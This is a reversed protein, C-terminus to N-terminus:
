RVESPNPAAPHSPHATASITNLLYGSVVKLIGRTAPLDRELLDDIIAKPISVASASDSSVEVSASRPRRTIVGLEGFVTGKAVWTETEGSVLLFISESEQGARCIEDGAKYFELTSEDAVKALSQLDLAAFAEVSLLEAMVVISAPRQGLRMTERWEELFASPAPDRPWLGDALAGANAPDAAVLGSVALAAVIWDRDAALGRLVEDAPKVAEVVDAYTSFVKDSTSRRFADRIDVPVSATAELLAADTEPSSLTYLSQAFSRAVGPADISSTVTAFEQILLRQRLLLAHRALRAEPRDDSALSFRFVEMRCFADLLKHANDVFRADDHTVEALIRAHEDESIGFLGRLPIIEKMAAPSALYAAPQVGEALGQQILDLLFKRYNERRLRVEISRAADPDLLTPDQIGVAEAIAAHDADSLGLQERVDRLMQLSNSSHTQGTELADVLIARYAERKQTSSFYPLTKALVYVEDATLQEIPRGELVDESRFGMRVLQQRLSRGLLERLYMNADRSLSRILWTITVAAIAFDVAKIAWPPMLQINPRGGFVYFVTICLFGCITLMRHRLQAKRLPKGLRASVRDYGHEVFAFLGFAGAICIVFYLPAAVIKPIPLARGAIFLGPGFLTSLQRNEHTWAGSMYYAWGGAYLYYYSYFAVILGFLGYYLFRKPNSEVRKWYSNELDVDPCNLTCGVCTSRDGGALPARCMSQGLPTPAIHAKSDFLGGPGTYAAQIVAAPCFYNCWTKGGYLLGVAFAFSLMFLFAVFLALRDANYFLLRGLLGLSLFGFQFYYHNRRMWSDSSLLALIRDVSGTSRNLTKIKRQRGLIAPIQSVFSLPCIRRWTEHGFLMLFLPLIPVIMTWFIRNGMPYPEAALPVGQVIVPPGGLRFPSLVNDPSTLAPTLPDFLLSAMILLWGLLLAVRVVRMTREPTRSLM